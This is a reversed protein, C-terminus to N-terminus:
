CQVTNMAKFYDEGHSHVLSILLSLGLVGECVILVLFFLLYFLEAGVFTLVVTILLYTIVSLLELTLLRNLLHTYNFVFSCVGLFILSLTLFLFHQLM